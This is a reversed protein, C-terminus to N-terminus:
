TLRQLYVSFVKDLLDSAKGKLRTCDKLSLRRVSKLATLAAAPGSLAHSGSLDLKTLCEFQMLCEVLESVLGSM